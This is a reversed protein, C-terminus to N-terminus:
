ADHAASLMAFYNELPVFDAVSNGTGLAFKGKDQTRELLARSRRYITEPDSRVLMDMDIGGLIAIGDSLQDYAQEVPCIVDEWSHRADVGMEVLDPFVSELQGCSHLIIPCDVAHCDDTMKKLWPMVYKRLDNPSIMPQTKFGWDDNYMMTGVMELRCAQEFYHAVRSGVADFLEGVLEPDDALMFCLGDFGTLKIVNELIGCPALPIYKMGEPLMEALEDLHHLQIADFEQWAYRDFSERDTICSHDNLSLTQKSDRAGTDFCITSWRDELMPAYDYGLSRFNHNTRRQQEMASGDRMEYSPDIADAIKDEMNMYLEYFVPRSPKGKLMALFENFDPEYSPTPPTTQMPM